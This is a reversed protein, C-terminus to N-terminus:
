GRAMEILYLHAYQGATITVDQEIIELADREALNISEVTADGEIVVLYAQRGTAIPFQTTEGASLATAYVNVDAHIKIPAASATNHYGTAIPLWSGVREDWTFRHEGYNPQYGKQDPLIWMQLLRVVDSGDNMESHTVGTGASMYQVQGRSLARMNGMSDKHSLEGDVVYSIIEMDRHPHTPFGTGPQIIDDNLVRMVGFHMNDPNYYEAFSFHFYSELWGHSAKGMKRHDIYRLM